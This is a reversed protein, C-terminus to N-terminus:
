GRRDLVVLVLCFLCLGGGCVRPPPVIRLRETGGVVPVVLVVLCSYLLNLRFDIREQGKGVKGKDKFLPLFPPSVGVVRVGIKICFCPLFVRAWVLVRVLVLMRVLVLGRGM